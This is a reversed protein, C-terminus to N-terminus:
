TLYLWHSCFQPKPSLALSGLRERFPAWWVSSGVASELAEANQRSEM